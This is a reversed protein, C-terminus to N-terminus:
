GKERATWMVMVVAVIQFFSRDFAQGWNPVTPFILQCLFNGVILGSLCLGIGVKSINLTDNSSIPINSGKSRLFNGLTPIKAKTVVFWLLLAIVCVFLVSLFGSFFGSEM